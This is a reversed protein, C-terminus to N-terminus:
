RGRFSPPRREQFSAIGEGADDTGQLMVVADIAASPRNTMSRQVLSKAAALALPASGAIKESLQALASDLEEDDVVLQVFGLEAAREASLREGAFVLYRAWGPGVIDVLQTIGFGPVLGLTAEPLAFLASRAAVVVDCALALEFGGGMALGNVGAIVPKACDQVAEFTRICDVIFDRRTSADNLDAYGHIDGGASFARDGEGTIIIVKVDDREELESLASRMAEWFSRRMANLREQGLLTITAIPGEVAISVDQTTMVIAGGPATHGM